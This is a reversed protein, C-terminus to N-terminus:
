LTAAPRPRRIENHQGQPFHHRSGIHSCQHLGLIPYWAIGNAGLGPIFPNLYRFSTPCRRSFAVLYDVANSPRRGPRPGLRCSSCVTRDPSGRPKLLCGLNEGPNGLPSNALLKELRYNWRYSSLVSFGLPPALDRKSQQLCLHGDNEEHVTYVNDTAPLLTM